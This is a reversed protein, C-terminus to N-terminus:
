VPRVDQDSEVSRELRYTADLALGPQAIVRKREALDELHAFVSMAAAPHLAPDIEAYLAGVLEPISKEREDLQALIANERALRHRRLNRVYPLADRIIGGHGPLYTHEKRGLLKDISAMYDRMSGDPPAVVSTSWGMVHDASLLVPAGCVAFCLHNATHGPTAVTELALEPAQFLEGDILMRDPVHDKDGSADLPNVENRALARAPRHPGCGVIPAGTQAKLLRAGPSHDVHTHSVLIAEITAGAAARLIADIHAPSAPGPDVCVLRRTGLLYTNTGYFTFPGSNDATLRRIGPVVETADGYNPEFDRDHKM